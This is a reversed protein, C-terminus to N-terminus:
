SALIHPHRKVGCWSRLLAITEGYEAALCTVRNQSRCNAGVPNRVVWYETRAFSVRSPGSVILASALSISVSRARVVDDRSRVLGINLPGGPIGQATVTTMPRGMLGPTSTIRGFSPFCWTLWRSIGLYAFVSRWQSACLLPRLTAARKPGFSIELKAQGKSWAHRAAHLRKEGGTTLHIEKARRDSAGQEFRILGPHQARAHHGTTLITSQRQHYGAIRDCQFRAQLDRLAYQQVSLIRVRRDAIEKIITPLLIKRELLGHTAAGNRGNITPGIGGVQYIEMLVGARSLEAIVLDREADINPAIHHTIQGTYRSIGVGRDFTASGLWVPGRTAGKKLIM